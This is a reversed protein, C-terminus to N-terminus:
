SCRLIIGFKNCTCNIHVHTYFRLGALVTVEIIVDTKGMGLPSRLPIHKNYKTGTRIKIIPVLRACEWVLVWANKCACECM